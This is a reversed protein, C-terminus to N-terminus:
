TVETDNWLMNAYARGLDAQRQNLPMLLRVVMVPNSYRFVLSTVVIYLINLSHLLRVVSSRLLKLVALTVSM